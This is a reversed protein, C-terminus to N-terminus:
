SAAIPIRWGTGFAQPSIKLVPPAQRRKFEGKKLLMSIKKILEPDYGKTILAKTTLREEIFGRLIPDLISYAPLSDSDLQNERLEASPLKELIKKGIVDGKVHLGINKRFNEPSQNDLWHCLEFVNTKYLDGIVALGGNMDGYLTCYGVALESKNGTSLLLQSNQNAVAMLLTGRIRSQLNEATVGKPSEGLSKKLSTDFCEMLQTIPITKTSIELREALEKSDTISGQSSWPSPMLLATVNEAGLAASAVVAVLASDIGGSLGLLAKKFGCKKAYDRVGLVLAHLVDEMYNNDMENKLAQIHNTDWIELSERYSPLQLVMGKPHKLVFSAGDFILEDNAGVQNLYIVPCNLRQSAKNAIDVRLQQKSTNFPSASLNILLNIKENILKKIPDPGSIRQAQLEEEVWLDECITIGIKWTEGNKKFHIMGPSNAARFYRTEDFVDYSPLLQKRAVVRWTEANILAISNFLKPIRQDSIGEAIGVLISIKPVKTAIIECLSQLIREQLKIYQENLLLDKPPYGWLSLEPTVLLDASYSDAEICAAEILAANGLLDGVLPNLQALAVRM